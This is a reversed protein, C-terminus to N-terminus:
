LRIGFWKWQATCGCERTWLQRCHVCRVRGGQRFHTHWENFCAWHVSRGCSTRCWIVEAPPCESLIPGDMCIPCEEDFPLRRVHTRDCPTSPASSRRTSSKQTASEPEPARPVVQGRRARRDLRCQYKRTRPREYVNGQADMSFDPTAYPIAHGGHLTRVHARRRSPAQQQAIVYHRIMDRWETVLAGAQSQHRGCLGLEALRQLQPALTNAHPQQVALEYLLERVAELKATALKVLCLHSKSNAYGLCNPHEDIKLVTRPNWQTAM